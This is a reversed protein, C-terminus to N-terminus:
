RYFSVLSRFQLLLSKVQRPFPLSDCLALATCLEKDILSYAPDLSKGNALLFMPYTMPRGKMTVDKKADLIDDIVQLAIGTSDGLRVLTEKLVPDANSLAHAILLSHQTYLASKKKTIAIYSEISFEPLGTYQLEQHGAEIVETVFSSLAASFIKRRAGDEDQAIMTFVYEIIALSVCALPMREHFGDNTEGDVLDDAVAVSLCMLTLGASRRRLELEMTRGTLAAYGLESFLQPVIYAARFGGHSQLPEQLIPNRQCLDYIIASSEVFVHPFISGITSELFKSTSKM